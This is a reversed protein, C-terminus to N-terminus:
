ADDVKKMLRTMVAIDYAKALDYFWSRDANLNMYHPLDPVYLCIKIRPDKKKAYVAAEIFPTHPCYVVILKQGDEDRIFERVAKKLAAARSFNRLGWINNFPVYSCLSQRDAFGRFRVIDSANPYAGVFPASIVSFDKDLWRFGEILKQQFVNASFEVAARAHRVVEQENEKAFVGCLMLVKM